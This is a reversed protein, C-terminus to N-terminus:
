EEHDAWGNLHAENDITANDASEDHEPVTDNENWVTRRSISDYIFTMSDDNISEESATEMNGEESATEMNREEEEFVDLMMQIERQEHERQEIEEEVQRM